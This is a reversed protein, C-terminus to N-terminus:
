PAAKQAQVTPTPTPTAQPAVIKMTPPQAMIRYGWPTPTPAPKLREPAPDCIDHTTLCWYEKNDDKKCVVFGVGVRKCEYGQKELEKQTTRDPHSNDNQTAYIPQSMMTALTALILASRLVQKLM